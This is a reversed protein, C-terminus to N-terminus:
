NNEVSKALELLQEPTVLGVTRKVEQGEASIFLLTPLATVNRASSFVKGDPQDVDLKLNIFNKNFYAAVSPDTFVNKALRKCPGCWTAFADVFILKNQATAMKQAEALTHATFTISETHANNSKGYISSVAWTASVLVLGILLLKKKKLNM